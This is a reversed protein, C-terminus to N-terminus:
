APITIKPPITFIHRGPHIEIRDKIGIRLELPRKSHHVLTLNLTSPRNAIEELKARLVEKFILNSLFANLKSLNPWIKFFYKPYHSGRLSCYVRSKSTRLGTKM